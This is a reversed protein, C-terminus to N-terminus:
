KAPVEPKKKPRWELWLWIPVSFGLLITPALILAIITNSMPGNPDIPWIWLRLYINAHYENLLWNAYLLLTLSQATILLRFNKNLLLFERRIREEVTM